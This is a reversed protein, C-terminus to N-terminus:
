RLSRALGPGDDDTTAIDFIAEKLARRGYTM